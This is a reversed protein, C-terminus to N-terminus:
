GRFTGSCSPGKLPGRKVHRVIADVLDPEPITGQRLCENLRAEVGSAFGDMADLADHSESLVARLQPLSSLPTEGGLGNCVKGEAYTQTKLHLVRCSMLAAQAIALRGTLLRQGIM